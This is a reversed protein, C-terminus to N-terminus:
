KIGGWENLKQTLYEKVAWLKSTGGKLLYLAGYIDEGRKTKVFERFAGVRDARHAIFAHEGCTLCMGNDLEYRLRYSNKGALHHACLVSEGGIQRGPKQSYESRYGARAKICDAWLKDCEKKLNPPKKPKPVAPM